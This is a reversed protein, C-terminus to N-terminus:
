DLFLRHILELTLLTSIETTYNGTGGVHSRVMAEVRKPQLYPRSLTRSDLLMERVYGSLADRYWLRYHAFKHRGLFLREFHFASVLGDLKTFWQPMGYDYAYEAKFSFELCARRMRSRLPGSAGALGRDTPIQCLAPNGEAILRVTDDYDGFIQGEQSASAPARFATQVLENDLYPSRLSLQSQELALLGYHHWPMQCFAIFSLTDAKRLESYTKKARGIESVIEPRFLDPMPDVPKFSIGRRLIESGYNGTMRIPAIQAAIENAYLDSSRGVPVCGDSLHVAREAYQPFRSLFDQGLPIVQHTQGCMRAVQRALKVDHCDRFPGGFSYCPLAGPAPKYWAMIMRTDLGGTLSMAVPESGSFYRPLTRSFVDRLREYYPEPELRGQNEWDAPQFYRNKRIPEGARLTWLSAPPLTSISKFLTRNELVCGCAIFEGLGRPDLTGLEPRAALIAKAEAAFYFADDSEHNYLRHMGYRDNFLIATANRRDALLGHFRGNLCAPFSPDEEYLHVLYSPGDPAVAHGRQKLRQATGPESFEEGAFVLVDGRENCIPMKAGPSNKLATWGVYVGLSEDIWTGTEYASAHRMAGLMQELQAM